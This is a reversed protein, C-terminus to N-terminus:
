YNMKYRLIAGIGGLGDLEGTGTHEGSIIHVRGGALEVQAMAAEVRPFTGEERSTRIFNNTVLLSEVAGAKATEEVENIGYAAKGSTSIEQKLKEVLQMEARARDKALIGRLEDRKLVESIAGQSVGSCTALVSKEKLKEDTIQKQLDEKFFAPSAIIIHELDYRKQYEELVSICENYFNGAKQARDDKKQVDGKLESLKEFGLRNVLAFIATERDHVCILIKSPKSESAEKIRAFQFKPWKEKNIKLDSGPEISLSHASGIPVDEPGQTVSGMVRLSGSELQVKDVRIQLTMAKKVSKANETDGIKIKRSTKSSVLDGAEIVQSLYWLDDPNEALVKMFGQKLNNALIKM